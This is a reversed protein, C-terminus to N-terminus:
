VVYDAEKTKLSTLPPLSYLLATGTNPFLFYAQIAAVSFLPHYLRTNIDPM